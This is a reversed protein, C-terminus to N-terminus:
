RSKVEWHFQFTKSLVTGLENRAHLLCENFSNVLTHITLMSQNRHALYWTLCNAQIKESLAWLLGRFHTKHIYEKWLHPFHHESSPLSTNLTVRDILPQSTTLSKSTEFTAHNLSPSNNLAKLIQLESPGSTRLCLQCTFNGLLLSLVNIQAKNFFSLFPFWWWISGDNTWERNASEGRGRRKDSVWCTEILHSCYGAKM